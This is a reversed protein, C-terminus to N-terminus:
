GGSEFIVKRVGQRSVLKGPEVSTLNVQNIMTGPTNEAPDNQDASLNIGSFQNIVLVTQPRDAM